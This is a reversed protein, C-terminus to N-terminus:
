IYILQNLGKFFWKVNNDDVTGVVTGNYFTKYDKSHHHLELKVKVPDYHWLIKNQDM